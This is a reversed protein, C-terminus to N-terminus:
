HRYIHQGLDLVQLGDDSIQFISRYGGNLRVSFGSGDKMTEFNWGHNAKLDQIFGSGKQKYLSLFEDMKRQVQPPAKAYGKEATKQLNVAASKYSTQESIQGTPTDTVLSASKAASQPQYKSMLAEVDTAKPEGKESLRAYDNWFAENENLGSKAIREFVSCDTALATVSVWFTMTLLLLALSRM